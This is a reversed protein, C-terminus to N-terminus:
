KKVVGLSLALGKKEALPRVMGAIKSISSPLDVRECHVTLQGAEIKSIDLVDNILALLHRASGRVMELQKSQEANLPGALGQLIIGTFGIISAGLLGPLVAPVSSVTGDFFSIANAAFSGLWVGALAKRGLIMVAALALGAAPFIPSVNGPPISFLFSVKAVVAYVVAVTLIIVPPSNYIRSASYKNPGTRNM